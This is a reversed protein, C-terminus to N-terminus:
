ADYPWIRKKPITPDVALNKIEFFGTETTVVCVCIATNDHIGVYMEGRDLYRDIMSEQEDGLLLLSLYEKKDCSLRIIDM